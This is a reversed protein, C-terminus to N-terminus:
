AIRKSMSVREEVEYGLSRYFGLVGANSTVVQLNIKMCGLASLRKEAEHVLTQGVGKLRNSKLVAIRSIWGRHGDYGAMISGVVRDTEVAVLLLDPQVRLKEPISASAVNWSSDDPFAESWLAAVGDFHSDTYTLISFM